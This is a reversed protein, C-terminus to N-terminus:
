NWNIYMKKCDLTKDTCEFVVNRAYMLLTKQYVHTNFCDVPSQYSYINLVEDLRQMYVPLLPDFDEGMEEGSDDVYEMVFKKFKAKTESVVVDTGWIVLSPAAAAVGAESTPGTPQETADSGQYHLSFLSLKARRTFNHNNKSLYM